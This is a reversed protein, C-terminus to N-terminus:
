SKRAARKKPAKTEDAEVAKNEASQVAKSSAEQRAAAREAFTAGLVAPVEVADAAAVPTAKSAAEVDENKETM